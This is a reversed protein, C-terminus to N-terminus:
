SLRRLSLWRLFSTIKVFLTMKRSIFKNQLIHIIYDSDSVPDVNKLIRYNITISFKLKLPNASEIHLYIIWIPYMITYM